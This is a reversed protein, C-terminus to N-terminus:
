FTIPKIVITDAMVRIKDAAVIMNNSTIFCKRGTFFLAEPEIKAKEVCLKIDVNKVFKRKTENGSITNFKVTAKEINVICNNM